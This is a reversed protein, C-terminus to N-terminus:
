CPKRRAFDSHDGRNRGPWQARAKCFKSNSRNLIHAQSQRVLAGPGTESTPACMTRGGSGEGKWPSPAGLHPPHPHGRPWGVQRPLGLPSGSWAQFTKRFGYLLLAAGTRGGPRASGAELLFPLPSVCNRLFNRQRSEKEFFTPRAFGGARSNPNNFMLIPDPSPREAKQM